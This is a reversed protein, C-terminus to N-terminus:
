AYALIRQAIWAGERLVLTNVGPRPIVTGFWKLGELTIGYLYLHNITEGDRNIVEFTQKNINAAGLQYSTGDSRIKRM